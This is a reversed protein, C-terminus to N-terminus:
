TVFVASLSPFLLTLSLFSIRNPCYLVSLLSISIRLLCPPFSLSRFTFLLLFNYLIFIYLFPKSQRVFHIGSFSGGHSASLHLDLCGNHDTVYHAHSILMQGNDTTMVAMLTVKQWSRLGSLTVDLDDDVLSKAPSATLTVTSETQIAMTATCAHPALQLHTKFYIPNYDCAQACEACSCCFFHLCEQRALGNSRVIVSKSVCYFSGGGGVLWTYLLQTEYSGPKIYLRYLVNETRSNERTDPLTLIGLDLFWTSPSQSRVARTGELSTYM